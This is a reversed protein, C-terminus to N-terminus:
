GFALDSEADTEILIINEFSEAVCEVCGVGASWCMVLTEGM